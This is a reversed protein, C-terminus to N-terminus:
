GLRMLMFPITEGPMVYSEVEVFGHKEAFRVGDVNSALIHTEIGTGRTQALCHQYLAEGFGRRRYPALVRAIVTEASTETSPPRVTSCGVLVDGDYAVELVNRTVRERVEAVSLGASPVIANHVLRWDALQGEDEVRVIRLEAM